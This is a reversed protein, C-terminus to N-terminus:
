RAGGAVWAVAMAKLVFVRSSGDAAIGTWLNGDTKVEGAQKGNLFVLLRTSGDAQREHDTHVLGGALVQRALDTALWTQRWAPHNLGTPETLLRVLGRREIAQLSSFEASLQHGDRPLGATAAAVMALLEAQHLTIKTPDLNAM